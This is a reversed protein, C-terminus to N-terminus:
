RSCKGCKKDTAGMDILLQKLIEQEVDGIACVINPGIRVMAYNFEKSKATCIEYCKELRAEAEPFANLDDKSLVMISVPTGYYDFVIHIAQQKKLSCMRGGRLSCNKKYMACGTCNPTERKYQENFYITLTEPSDTKLDLKFDPRLVSQHVQEAAELLDLSSSAPPFLLLIGLAIMILAASALPIFYNLRRPKIVSTTASAIAKDWIEADKEDPKSLIKALNKELRAEVDFRARCSPCKSLHENAASELGADLEKDLYRNLYDNINTCDIM